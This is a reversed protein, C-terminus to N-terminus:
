SSRVEQPSFYSLNYTPTDSGSSLYIIIELVRSYGLFLTMLINKFYSFSTIKM